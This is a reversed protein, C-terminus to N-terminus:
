ARAGQRTTAHEPNDLRIHNVADIRRYPQTGLGTELALVETSQFQALNHQRVGAFKIDAAQQVTEGTKHEGLKLLAEAGQLTGAAPAAQRHAARCM